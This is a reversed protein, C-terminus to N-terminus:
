RGRLASRCWRDEERGTPMAPRWTLRSDRPDIGDLMDALQAASISVDGNTPSARSYTATVPRPELGRPYTAAAREGGKVAVVRKMILVVNPRAPNKSM